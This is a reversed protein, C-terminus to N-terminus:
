KDYDSIVLYSPPHAKIHALIADIHASTITIKEEYDARLLQQHYTEDIYRLKFITPTDVQIAQLSIDQESALQRM